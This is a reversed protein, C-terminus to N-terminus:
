EKKKTKTDFNIISLFFHLTLTIKEIKKKFKFITKVFFILNYNRLYYLYSLFYGITIHPYNKWFEFIKLVFELLFYKKILIQFVTKTCM